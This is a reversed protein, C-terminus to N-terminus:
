GKLREMMDRIIPQLRDPTIPKAVVTDVIGGGHVQRAAPGANGLLIMLPAQGGGTPRRLRTFREVLRDSDGGAAGDLVVLAPLGGNLPLAEEPSRCVTRYGAREAIRSVVVRDVPSPAVVLVLGLDVDASLLAGDDNDDSSSPM